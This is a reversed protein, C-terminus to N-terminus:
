DLRRANGDDYFRKLFKTPTKVASVVLDLAFIKVHFKQASIIDDRVFVTQRIEVQVYGVAGVFINGRLNFFVGLLFFERRDGFSQFEDEALVTRGVVARSLNQVIVQVLGFLPRENRFVNRIKFGGDFSGTMFRALLPLFKGASQNESLNLTLKFRQGFVRFFFNRLDDVTAIFVGFSALIVAHEEAHFFKPFIGDAAVGVFEGLFKRVFQLADNLIKFLRDGVKVGGFQLLANGINFLENRRFHECFRLRANANQAIAFNVFFRYAVAVM